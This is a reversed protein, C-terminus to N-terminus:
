RMYLLRGCERCFIMKGGKLLSVENASLQVYCFGCAEEEVAVLAKGPNSHVIREYNVLLEPAAKEIAQRKEMRNEHLNKLNEEIERLTAQIEEVYKGQEKKLRAIKDKQEACKKQRNENEEVAKLIAEELLEEQKKKERIEQTLAEYERNDRAKNLQDEKKKITAELEALVGEQHRIHIIERKGEEESQTLKRQAEEYDKQRQELKKPLIKQEQRLLYIEWDIKHLELFQALIAM